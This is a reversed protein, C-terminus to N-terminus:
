NIQVKKINQNNKLFWGYTKEMGEKLKIEAKWGIENLKSVDLLKRPVSQIEQILRILNTRDTM